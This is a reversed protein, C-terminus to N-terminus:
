VMPKAPDAAGFPPLPNAARGAPSLGHWATILAERRLIWHARLKLLAPLDPWEARLTRLLSDPDHSLGDAVAELYAALEGLDTEIENFESLAEVFSKASKSVACAM